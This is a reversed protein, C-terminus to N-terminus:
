GGAFTDVAEIQYDRLRFPRGDPLTDALRIELADGDTYGAVDEVPHGCHTLVQKLEGRRGESVVQRVADLPEALLDIVPKLHRIEEMLTPDDAVLVLREDAGGELRLRGYRGMTDRVHVPVNEPVPFKAWQELAAV